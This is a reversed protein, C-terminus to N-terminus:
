LKMWNPFDNYYISFLSQEMSCPMKIEFNHIVNLITPNYGIRSELNAENQHYQSDIIDSTVLVWEELRDVYVIVKVCM